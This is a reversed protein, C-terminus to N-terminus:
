PEEENWLKKFKSFISKWMGLWYKIAEKIPDHCLMNKIVLMPLSVLMTISVCLIWLVGIFTGILTSIVSKMTIFEKESKKM